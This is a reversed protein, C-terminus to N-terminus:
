GVPPEIQRVKSAPQDPTSLPHVAPAVVNMADERRELKGDVRGFSATRVAIRYNRYVPPPVVITVTRVEDEALMFGVGNATAPGRWGSGDTPGSVRGRPSTRWIPTPGPASGSM